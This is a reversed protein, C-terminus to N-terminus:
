HFSIEDNASDGAHFQTFFMPNVILQSRSEDYSISFSILYLFFLHSEFGFSRGILVRDAGFSHCIILLFHKIPQHRLVLVVTFKAPIGFLVCHLQACKARLLRLQQLQISQYEINCECTWKTEIYNSVFTNAQAAILTLNPGDLIM